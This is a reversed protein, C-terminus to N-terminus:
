RTSRTRAASREQRRSPANVSGWEHLAAGWSRARPTGNREAGELVAQARSIRVNSEANRDPLDAGGPILRRDDHVVTDEGGPRRYRNRDAHTLDARAAAIRAAQARDAKRRRGTIVDRAKSLTSM